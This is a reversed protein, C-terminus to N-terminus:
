DNKEEPDCDNDILLEGSEIRDNLYRDIEKPNIVIMDTTNFDKEDRTIVTDIGNRLASFALLGDEYDSIDSRLTSFSDEENVDVINFIFSIKELTEFPDKNNDLKRCFYFIDKLSQVSVHGEIREEEILDFIKDSDVCFPQRHLITDLLVNTDILAKM